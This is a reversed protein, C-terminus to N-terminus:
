VHARGIEYGLEDIDQIEFNLEKSLPIHSDAAAFGAGYQLEWRDLLTEGQLSLTRNRVESDETEMNVHLFPSSGHFFFNGEPSIPIGNVDVDTFDDSQEFAANQRENTVDEKNDNYVMALTTADTARWELALTASYNDREDEFVNYRIDEVAFERTEEFAVDAPLDSFDEIPAGNEDLPLMIPMWDGLVDFQYVKRYRKRTTFSGLVGFREDAFIRSGTIGFRYGTKDAFDNDRGELSVRFINRGQQLPTGSNLEVSGGIGVGSQDPLLTKHVVIEAISDAQFVSFPVRRSGPESQASDVGNVKVNNLGADLGRISIFEGEGSREQRQFSIGPVRRLAEAATDDPFKGAQDASIINSINVAARQKNLAAAQASRTGYVVIEEDAAPRGGAARVNALQLAPLATDATVEVPRELPEFGIAHVTLRYSGMPVGVLRFRGHDDSRASWTSSGDSLEILAGDVAHETSTSVVRSRVSVEVLTSEQQALADPVTLSLLPLTLCFVPLVRPGHRGRRYRNM